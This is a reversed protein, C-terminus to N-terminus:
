ELQGLTATLQGQKLEYQGLLADLRAFKLRLTTEMKEIRIKEFSIKDDIGDMIDRYNDQLVALPGGEYTYENYPKTLETLTNAMEGAKGMKISIQGSYTGAATNDLRIGLGLADGSMGTIDWGSIKAPEGNITASTITTGDSVIQIDYLGPKTTKEVLSTYTFDSSQSKGLYKASFLEAVGNPDDKLAKELIEFDVKLLGYSASGEEADTMIGLQSLASYRDGTQDDQNFYNFGLGIDATIFKLKQAIIDVAYNGTLISGKGDEDVSTIAQIQARVINVAEVFSAVNAMVASTDTIINLKIETGQEANNLNLTIGEIIDDITNSSREIWGGGSSPFGNVKIQSNDANQTENFDSGRFIIDGANSIVVQNDSGQERGTIQLHYVSGDFITSARINDRSDAHNNILIVFGQLTTGASINSLTYSTGGYSYTFFTDSTTISSTLSSAGSATIHVDNSALQGIEITHSAEQADSSAQATLMSTDTSTVAKTLFENM